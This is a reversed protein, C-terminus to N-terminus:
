IRKDSIIPKAPVGVVTQGDLVDRIVVAGAGVKVDDGISINQLIKAGTGLLTRAGIRVNGSINAAPMISTFGGVKVDHGITVALNVIVFDSVILGTTMIVGDTIIVGRGIRNTAAGTNARPHVIVPFHLHKNPDINSVLKHRICPDAVAMVVSLKSKANALTEFAGIVPLDSNVHINDDVFGVFNWQKKVQNIQDILLAVERGLGGAGYIVLDKM